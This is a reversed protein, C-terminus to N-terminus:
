QAVKNAAGLDIGLRKNAAAFATMILSRHHSRKDLKLDAAKGAATAIQTPTEAADLEEIIPLVSEMLADTRSAIPIIEAEAYDNAPQASVGQDMEESAYLGALDAPFARRLARAEACKALMVSPMKQWMPNRADGYEVLLSTEGVDHWTGGVLIKVWATASFLVNNRYEFETPKGPAYKGTMAAIKRFGDIGTQITMKGGRIIAYIERNIPDLGRSKCIHLFLEFQDNSLDKCIQRKILDIKPQDFDERRALATVM